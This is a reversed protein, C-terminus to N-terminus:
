AGRDAPPRYAWFSTPSGSCGYCVEGTEGVTVGEALLFVASGTSQLQAFRWLKVAGAGSGINEELPGGQIRHWTGPDADYLAARGCFYAFLVGRAVASAPYCEDFSLPMEVPTSWEDRIPDYEQSRAEYDWAVMRTGLWAATTAQPSLRSPSLVGWRDTAPDYAAGVAVSTAARNRDDLLSGFVIVERGTWIGSAHNLGIPADAITRWTDAVPDYAAGGAVSADGPDGGGWVVVESGTWVAVAGSHWDIPAAAITRWAGTAPDYAQGQMRDHVGLLFIAERGTWVGYADVAPLPAREM